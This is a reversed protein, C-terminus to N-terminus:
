WSGTAAQSYIRWGCASPFACLHHLAVCVQRGLVQQLMGFQLVGDKERLIGEGTVNSLIQLAVGM